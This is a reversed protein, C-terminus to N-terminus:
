LETLYHDLEWDTVVEHYDNWEREKMDIYDSVFSKPFVTHTFPDADFCDVAELLNRPLRDKRHEGSESWAYAQGSAMEPLTLKQEIGDLGAALLFAASLYTNAASDVLRNEVAPRNRPLRLMCSRNNDGVSIWTPAWSVGGSSLSNVLRKYSNVTPNTIAPMARGHALIGASFSAALPTWQQDEDRFLNEGDLDELSMNFHAGSGWAQGAPKPMFSAFGGAEEAYHKAMMRFLLLKDAMSLADDHDFDFEYQGEGGEQDFSFVGFGLENMADVMPGLFGLADVAADFLYAPSPRRQGSPWLPSLANTEKDRQLVYFETEVGLQFRFGLAEARGLQEKLISRCCLAYPEGEQRLDAPMVAVERNWPLVSIRAVDPLTTCEDEVPDMEGLGDLGRPTFRESGAVLQPLHDVPVVKGRPRGAVDPYVASVWRVGQAALEEAIQHHAATVQNLTDM